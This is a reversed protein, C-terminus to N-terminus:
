EFRGGLISIILICSRFKVNKEHKVKILKTQIALKKVVEADTEDMINKNLCFKCKEINSTENTLQDVNSKVM